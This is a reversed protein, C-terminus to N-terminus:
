KLWNPPASPKAIATPMLPRLFGRLAGVTNLV